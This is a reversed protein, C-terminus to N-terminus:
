RIGKHVGAAINDVILYGLLHLGEPSRGLIESGAPIDLFLISLGATALRGRSAEDVM